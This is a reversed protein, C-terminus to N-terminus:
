CTFSCDGNRVGGNFTGFICNDQNNSGWSQGEYEFLLEDDDNAGTKVVLPDPLRSEANVDQGDPADAFQLKGITEDQADTITIDLHYTPNPNTDPQNKQYQTINVDCRGPYYPIYLTPDGNPDGPDDGYGDWDFCFKDDARKFLQHLSEERKALLAAISEPTREWITKRNETNTYDVLTIKPVNVNDMLTPLETRSWTRCRDIKNDFPAVFFVEGKVIEAYVGSGRDWFDQLWQSSRGNQSCWGIPFAQRIGAGGISRAFDYAPVSPGIQSFFIFPGEVNMIVSRIEDDSPYDTTDPGGDGLKGAPTGSYRKALQVGPVPTSLTGQLISVASLLGSLLQTFRM